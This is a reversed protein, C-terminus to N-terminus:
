ARQYTQELAEFTLWDCKDWRTTYTVCRLHNQPQGATELAKRLFAESEAKSEPHWAHGTKPGVLFLVSPLDKTTWRYPTEQTFHFGERVLAERIRVSARLQADNEGGYGVTPIDFANMAYDESEYYNLNTVQYPKLGEKMMRDRGDWMSKYYGG